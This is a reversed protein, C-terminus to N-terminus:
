PDLQVFGALAEIPNSAHEPLQRLEDKPVKGGKIVCGQGEIQAMRRSWVDLGAAVM